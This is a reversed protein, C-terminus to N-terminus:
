FQYESRLYRDIIESSIQDLKESCYRIYCSKGDVVIMGFGGDYCANNVSNRFEDETAARLAVHTEADLVAGWEFTEM